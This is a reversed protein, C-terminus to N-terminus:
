QRASQSNAKVQVRVGNNTTIVGSYAIQIQGITGIIPLGTYTNSKSGRISANGIVSPSVDFGIVGASAWQANPNSITIVSAALSQPLSVHAQDYFTAGGDDSTQLFVDVAPNTGNVSSTVKMVINDTDQPITFTQSVVSTAGVGTDTYDLVGQLPFRISM